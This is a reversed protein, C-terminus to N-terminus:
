SANTTTVGNPMEAVYIRVSDISLNRRAPNGVAYQLFGPRTQGVREPVSESVADDLLVIDPFDRHQQPM